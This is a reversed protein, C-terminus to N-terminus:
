FFLLTVVDLAISFVPVLPGSHILTSVAIVIFFSVLGINFNSLRQKLLLTIGMVFCLMRAISFVSAVMPMRVLYFYSQGIIIFFVFTLLLTKISQTLKM